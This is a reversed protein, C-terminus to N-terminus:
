QQLRNRELAQPALSSLGTWSNHDATNLRTGTGPIKGQSFCLRLEPPVPRISSSIGLGETIGLTRYGEAALKRNIRPCHGADDGAGTGWCRPCRTQCFRLQAAALNEHLHVISSTGPILLVNTESPEDVVRKLDAPMPAPMWSANEGNM